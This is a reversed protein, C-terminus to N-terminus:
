SLVFDKRPPFYISEKWNKFLIKKLRETLENISNSKIMYFNAGERYTDNIIHIDELSTYMIVPVNDFKKRSRIERLCEQGTRCPMNIDLFIIGPFIEELLAVLQEGNEAVTLMVAHSLEDIALQFIFIDDKDDEALLIHPIEETNTMTESIIILSKM